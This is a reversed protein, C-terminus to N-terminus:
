GGRTVAFHEPGAPSTEALDDSSFSTTTFRTIGVAVREPPACPLGPCGGYAAQCHRHYHGGCTGCREATGRVVWGCLACLPEPPPSLPPLRTLHTLWAEVAAFMEVVQPASGLNGSLLFFVCRGSLTFSGAGAAFLRRVLARGEPDLLMRAFAPLPTSCAFDADFAADGTHFPLRKSGAGLMGPVQWPGLRTVPEIVVPPYFARLQVALRPGLRIAGRTLDDFLIGVWSERWWLLRPHLGTFASPSGVNMPRLDPRLAAAEVASTGLTGRQFLRRTLRPDRLASFLALWALGAAIGLVPPVASRSGIQDLWRVGDVVVFDVRDSSGLNSYDRATADHVQQRVRHADVYSGRVVCERSRGGCGVSAIEVRVTHGAANRVYFPGLALQVLLGVIGATVTLAPADRRLLVDETRAARIGFSVLWAFGVLAVGAFIWSAIWLFVDM